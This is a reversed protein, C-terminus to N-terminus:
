SYFTKYSYLLVLLILISITWPPCIMFQFRLLSLILIVSIVGLAVSIFAFIFWHSRMLSVLKQMAFSVM